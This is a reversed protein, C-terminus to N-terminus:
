TGLTFYFTSGRDVAAEAWVRGGHRRIIIDVITLGVGTGPFEDTDHLHQFARFLRDSQAMDFGVGDDKIYYIVQDDRSLSSIEVHARDHPRTFKLANSILAGWVQKLLTPDAQAAPLDGIHLEARLERDKQKIEAVVQEVILRMNVQQKMPAVRTARSLALLDEAMCDTTVAHGLIQRLYRQGDLPLAAGFQELALQSFQRILSLPARLDHSVAYTFAELEKDTAEVERRAAEEQALAVAQRENATQLDASLTRYREESARLSATYRQILTYLLIATVIIFVWGKVMGVKTLMSSTGVIAEMLADSFLIWLAGFLAYLGAIRLAGSDRVYPSAQSRADKQESM